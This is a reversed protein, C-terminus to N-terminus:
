CRCNRTKRGYWEGTKIEGTSWSGVSKLIVFNKQVNNQYLNVGIFKNNGYEVHQPINNDFAYMLTNQQNQPLSLLTDKLSEM